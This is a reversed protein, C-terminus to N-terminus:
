TQYEITSENKIHNLIQLIEDTIYKNWLAHRIPKIWGWYSAVGNLIQERTMYRWNKKVILIKQKFRKAINGRLLTIGKFFRYGCFDLGRAELPFIQYNSKLSLILKSQLYTRIARLLRHLKKKFNSLVVIDDCYRFYHKIKQTGKVWHDFYALYLNGFYQSLYNGIPMGKASFVIERLLFLTQRCKIKKKLIQMLITNNISPYYKKIDLKLCYKAKGTRVARQVRRRADSVGRGKISQYTDRILTKKWIPELIQMIAHHLIRDPFYPLRYITRKKGKDMKDSIKYKSNKFTQTILTNQLQTLYEDPNKDIRKVEAYHTKGKRANSHALRLNNIDYIKHYLNGYRKL